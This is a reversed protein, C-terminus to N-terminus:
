ASEERLADRIAPRFGTSDPNTVYDISACRQRDMPSLVNPDVHYQRMMEGIQKNTLRQPEEAQGAPTADHELRLLRHRLDRVHEGV